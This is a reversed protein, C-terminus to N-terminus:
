EGVAHEQGTMTDDWAKDAASNANLKGENAVVSGSTPTLGGFDKNAPPNDELEKTKVDEQYKEGIEPHRDRAIVLLDNISHNPKEKSLELISEKYYGFDKNDKQANMVEERLDKNDASDKVKTVQESVPAVVEKKIRDVISMAMANAFDLRSMGELDLEALSPVQDPDVPAPKLSTVEGALGKQGHEITTVRETLTQIGTAIGGLTETIKALAETPDVPDPM